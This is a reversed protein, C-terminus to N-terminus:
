NELLDIRPNRLERSFTGYNFRTFEAPEGLEQTLILTDTGYDGSIDISIIKHGMIFGGLHEDILSQANERFETENWFWSTVRYVGQATSTDYDFLWDFRYRNDGTITFNNDATWEGEVGPQDQIKAQLDLQNQARIQTISVPEPTQNIIAKDPTEFCGAVLIVGVFVLFVMIGIKINM